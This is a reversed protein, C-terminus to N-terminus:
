MGAIRILNGMGCRNNHIDQVNFRPSYQDSCSHILIGLQMSVTGSNLKRCRIDKIMNNCSCPLIWRYHDRQCELSPDLQFTGFCQCEMRISVLGIADLSLRTWHSWLRVCQSIRYECHTGTSSISCEPCQWIDCNRSFQITNTYLPITIISLIIHITLQSYISCTCASKLFLVQTEIFGHYVKDCSSQQVEM